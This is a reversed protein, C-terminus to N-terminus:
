GYHLIFLICSVTITDQLAVLPTNSLTLNCYGGSPPQSSRLVVTASGPESADESHVQLRFRYTHNNELVNERISLNPSDTGTSTDDPGLRIVDGDDNLVQWSYTADACHDTCRGVLKIHQSRSITFINSELCSVCRISVIPIANERM